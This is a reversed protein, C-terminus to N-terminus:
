VADIQALLDPSLTWAGAAVNATIQEPKTAGAIVSAVEPHALLWAFALDLVTHGEGRALADLAAVKAMREDSMQEAGREGWAALRTGEPAAQGATYKGSLLGSELPFYPLFAVGTHACEALVNDDAKEPARHLVSYQNQVSAFKPAGDAVAAEAEELMAATFNSCGIERVKGEAVLEGLAGLTDAIPTKVDPAHLQYLDIHDTGLRSLSDEVAIKIYAPTAGGEHGEYPVGFKTALIIEDRRSGLAAGLYTESKTGGYIDATDFLTIGADIAAGVVAATEARNIRMGFNNCGLGVVSVTLSGITRTDM